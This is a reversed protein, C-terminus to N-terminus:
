MYVHLFMNFVSIYILFVDLPLLFYHRHYLMPRIKHFRSDLDQIQSFTLSSFLCKDLVNHTSFTDVASHGNVGLDMGDIIMENSM